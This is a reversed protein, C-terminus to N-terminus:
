LENCHRWLSRLPTEFWRRGWQKSLRQNLRLDLFVDFSGGKHPSNVPSRHIVRMFHGTVCFINGNSSTMMHATANNGDTSCCLSWHKACDAAYCDYLTCWCMLRVLSSLRVRQLCVSNICHPGFLIVAKQLRCKWIYKSSHLRHCKRYCKM